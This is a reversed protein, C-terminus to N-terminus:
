HFKVNNTQVYSVNSIIGKVIFYDSGGFGCKLNLNKKTRQMVEYSLPGIYEM